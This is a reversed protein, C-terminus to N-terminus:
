KGSISEANSIRRNMLSADNPHILRSLKRIEEKSPTRSRRPIGDLYSSSSDQSIPADSSPSEAQNANANAMASRQQIQLLMLNNVPIAGYLQIRQRLGSMTGHNIKRKYIWNSIKGILTYDLRPSQQQAEVFYECIAIIVAFLIGAFLVFFIGYVRKLSSYTDITNLQCNRADLNNQILYSISDTM